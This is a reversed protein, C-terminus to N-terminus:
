MVYRFSKNEWDTLNAWKEDDTAVGREEIKGYLRDRRANQWKYYFMLLIATLAGSCVTVMITIKAPIYEPADRAQFTQPGIVSGMNFAAAVLSMAVPRKTQGANNASVWSYVIPTVAVNFNILLIGALVGAKTRVFSMLAGSLASPIAALCIFLWRQRVFRVGFCGVLVAFITVCGAPANLLASQKSTYGINRLLTASFSTGVGANVVLLVEMLFLLYTQPDRLLEWVQSMRFQTNAVGTKNDSIHQLLASKETDNMWTAKMPSDPIFLYTVAGIIVTAIGLVIFMIRWNAIRSNTLHQFGFSTLAGIIQGVGVGTYWFGFRSPQEHKTYWQSSIIMLCPGVAAEFIGLFIRATLLGAYNKTAAVVATSIGWLCVNIGLWKGAPVKNLIFGTPVEAALLAVFTFTNADAFNNGRLNLDRSINMVAAYNLLVKDLFQAVFCFFMIPVIRLDIRRRLAKLDVAAIEAGNAKNSALFDFAQDKRAGLVNTPEAKAMSPSPSRGGQNVVMDDKALAAM